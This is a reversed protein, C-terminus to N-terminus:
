VHFAFGSVWLEMSLAAASVCVPISSCCIDHLHGVNNEDYDCAELSAAWFLFSPLWQIYVSKAKEKWLGIARSMLCIVACILFLVDAVLFMLYQNMMGAGLSLYFERQVYAVSATGLTSCLVCPVLGRLLM